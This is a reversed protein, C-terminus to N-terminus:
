RLNAEKYPYIYTSMSKLLVLNELIFTSLLNQISNGHIKNRSVVSTHRRCYYSVNPFTLIICFVITLLFFGNIAISSEAVLTLVVCYVDNVPFSDSTVNSSKAVWLSFRKICLSKLMTIKTLKITRILM